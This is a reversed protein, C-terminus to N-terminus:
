VLTSEARIFVLVVFREGRLAGRTLPFEGIGSHVLLHALRRLFNRRRVCVLLRAGRRGRGLISPIM